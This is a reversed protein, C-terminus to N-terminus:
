ILADLRMNYLGHVVVRIKQVAFHDPIKIRFGSLDDIGVPKVPLALEPLNKILHTKHCSAIATSTHIRKAGVLHDINLARM